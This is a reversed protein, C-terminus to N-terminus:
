GCNRTSDMAVWGNGSISSCSTHEFVAWKGASSGTRTLRYTETEPHGYYYYTDTRAMLTIRNDLKAWTKSGVVGDWQSLDDPFVDSQFQKVALRTKDGFVGDVEGSYYGLKSLVWQVTTTLDSVRNVSDSVTCNGSWNPTSSVTQRAHCAAHAP